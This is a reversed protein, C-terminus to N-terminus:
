QTSNSKNHESSGDGVEQCSSPIYQSIKAHKARGCILIRLGGKIKEVEKGSGDWILKVNAGTFVM